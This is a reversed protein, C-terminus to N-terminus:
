KKFTLMPLIAEEIFHKSISTNFIKSLFSKEYVALALVDPKHTEIYTELGEVIGTRNLNKFSIDDDEFKNELEKVQEQVTNAVNLDFYEHIHIVKCSAGIPKAIDLLKQTAGIEDNEFDAAYMITQPLNLPANEPIFWVPCEVSEIVNQANTDLWRDIANETGKTAMVIFDANISKAVEIIKDSLLGYEVMQTVNCIPLNTDEIFKTTFVALNEKADEESQLVSIETDFMLQQEALIPIPVPYAHLLVVKANLQTALMAAYKSAHIANTSFDTPFLITKM